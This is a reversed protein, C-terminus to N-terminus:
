EYDMPVAMKPAQKRQGGPDGSAISFISLRMSVTDATAMAKLCTLCGIYVSCSFEYVMTRHM